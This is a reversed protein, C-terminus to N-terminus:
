DRQKLPVSIIGGLVDLMANRTLQVIIALPRFGPTVMPLILNKRTVVEGKFPDYSYLSGSM